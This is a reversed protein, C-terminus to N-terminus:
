KTKKTVVSIAKQFVHELDKVDKVTGSEVKSALERLENGASDLEAKAVHRLQAARLRLFSAAKRIESAAAARDNEQLKSKAKEFHYKYADEFIRTPEIKLPVM